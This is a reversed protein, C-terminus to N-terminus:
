KGAVGLTAALAELVNGCGVARFDRAAARAAGEASRMADLRAQTSPHDYLYGGVTGGPVAKHITALGLAARDPRFCASAALRLGLADAAYESTRQRPLEIGLHAAAGVAALLAAETLLGGTPDVAAIFAMQCMAAVGVANAHERGHYLLLHSLEHALVFALEADNPLSELLGRTCFITNRIAPLVFANLEPTDLVVVQVSSRKALARLSDTTLSQMARENLAPESVNEADHDKARARERIERVAQRKAAGVIRGAVREARQKLPDTADLVGTESHGGQRLAAWAAANAYAQPDELVEFSGHARGAAFTTLGLAVARVGRSLRPAWRM